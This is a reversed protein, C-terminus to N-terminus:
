SFLVISYKICNIICLIYLLLHINYHQCFTLWWAEAAQSNCCNVEIFVKTQQLTVLLPKMFFTWTSLLISPDGDLLVESGDHGPTNSSPQQSSVQCELTLLPLHLPHLCFLFLASACFPSWFPCLLPLLVIDPASLQFQSALNELSNFVQCCHVFTCVSVSCWSWLRVGTDECM